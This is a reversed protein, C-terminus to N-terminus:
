DDVAVGRGIGKGEWVRERESMRMRIWMRIRLLKCSAVRRM